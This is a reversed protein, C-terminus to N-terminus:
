EAATICPILGLGLPEPEPEPEPLFLLMISCFSTAANMSLAAAAFELQPFDVETVPPLPADAPPNVSIILPIVRRGVTASTCDKICALDPTILPPPPPPPDPTCSNLVLLLLQPGFRPTGGGTAEVLQGSGGGGGGDAAVSGSISSTVRGRSGLVGELASDGSMCEAMYLELLVLVAEVCVFLCLWEDPAVAVAVASKHIQFGQKTCALIHTM